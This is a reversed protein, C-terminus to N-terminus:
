IFRLLFMKKSVMNFITKKKNIKSYFSKFFLKKNSKRNTIIPEQVLGESAVTEERNNSVM